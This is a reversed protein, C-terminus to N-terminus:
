VVFRPHVKIVRSVRGGRGVMVVHMMVVGGDGGRQLLEASVLYWIKEGDSGRGGKQRGLGRSDWKSSRPEVVECDDVFPRGLVTHRCGTRPVAPADASQPRTSMRYVLVFLCVLFRYTMFVFTQVERRDVQMECQPGAQCATQDHKTHKTPLPGKGVM